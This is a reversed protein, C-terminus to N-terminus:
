CADPDNIVRYELPWDMYYRPSKRKEKNSDSRDMTTKVRKLLEMGDMEPMKLNPVSGM